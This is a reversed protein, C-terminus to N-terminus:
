YNRMISLEWPLENYDYSDPTHSADFAQFLLQLRYDEIELREDFGSRILEPHSIQDYATPSGNEAFVYEIRINAAASM